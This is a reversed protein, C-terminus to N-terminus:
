FFEWYTGYNRNSFAFKCDQGFLIKMIEKGTEYYQVIVSGSMLYSEFECFIALAAYFETEPM